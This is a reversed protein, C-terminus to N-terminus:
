TSISTPWGSTAPRAVLPAVDRHAPRGRELPGRPRVPRSRLRGGARPQPGPAREPQVRRHGRRRRRLRRGPPGPGQGPRHRAPAPRGHDDGQGAPHLVDPAPRSRPQRHHWRPLRVATDRRDPLRDLHHHFDGVVASVAVGPYEESLATAAEWLTTDSVDLPVFRECGGPPSCPTSCSAPSTAPAPAWSSWPTPRRAAPRHGQCPRRPHLAGVPHPLVRAAPHDRRVAPQGPRRLLLRAAPEQPRRDLGTRVDREMADRLDDGTLHVDITPPIVTTCPSASRRAPPRSPAVRGETLRQPGAAPRLLGLPRFAPLLEPLHGPHPGAAHRVVRGAARVPQGHVQRQVRRRGRSRARVRSLPQLGLVDVAVRQRVPARARRPVASRAHSPAQDSRPLPGRRSQGAAAVEWEAETPLRYGAWRAFADAEYYSVHCVPQAPNVPIPGGLTFESGAATRVRVLLPPEGVGGVAGDGVRGVAVARAPPLRRRRHLGAVRRLDGAPRRPRLVGPVGSPPSSTTSASARDRHPRGRRHGRSLETWTPAGAAEAAPLRVADYAPLLPNRSLVHKIDM